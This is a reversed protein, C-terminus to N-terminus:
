SSGWQGRHIVAGVDRRRAAVAPNQPPLDEARYGVCIGGIPAYEDPIGFEAKFAATHAPVDVEPEFDDGAAPTIGFFCAGLGEDVAALLMMLAAMGTDVYWYPAPWRAVSRDTWGKDTEAYRALYAAQHALPVVVLPAYQMTPTQAVRTPVFPWFRARDAPETLALFAWGQSFGASPARLASALIKEVTEASLPRDAYHRVMRRRRIM